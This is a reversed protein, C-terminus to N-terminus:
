APARGANWEDFEDQNAPNRHVRADAPGRPLWKKPGSQVDVIRNPLSSPTGSDGTEVLSALANRIVRAPIKADLAAKIRKAYQGKIEPPLQIQREPLALYDIFAKLITGANDGDAADAALDPSPNPTPAIEKSIARRAPARSGDNAEANNDAGHSGSPLNGDDQRASAEAAKARQKSWRADAGRKGAESRAERTEDSPLTAEFGEIQYGGDDQLEWLRHKVLLEAADKGMTGFYRRWVAPPLRGPIRGKKRTYRNAWAFTLTWLGIAMGATALDEEGLLAFVRPDDEFEDDIRGWGVPAGEGM